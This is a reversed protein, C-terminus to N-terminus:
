VYSNKGDGRPLLNKKKKGEFFVQIIMHSKYHNNTKVIMKNLQHQDSFCPFEM